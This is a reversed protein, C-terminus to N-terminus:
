AASAPARRRRPSSEAVVFGPDEVDPATDLILRSRRKPPVAPAAVARAITTTLSRAGHLREEVVDRLLAQYNSLPKYGDVYPCGLEILVASINQHKREISGPSRGDLRAVLRRNHDKKNFREGRLEHALMEFYDTVTAEVEARSWARAV